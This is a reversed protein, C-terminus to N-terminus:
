RTDQLAAALEGLRDRGDDGVDPNDVSRNLVVFDTRLGSARLQDLTWGIKADDLYAADIGLIVPEDLPPVEARVTRRSGLENTIISETRLEIGPTSKGIERRRREYEQPPLVHVVERAIGSQLVVWLMNMPDLNDAFTGPLDIPPIPFRNLENPVAQDVPVFHLYRSLYIMVRGRRGSRVLSEYLGSATEVVEITPPSEEITWASEGYVRASSGTRQVLAVVVMAAMGILVVTLWRGADVRRDM